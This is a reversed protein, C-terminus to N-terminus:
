KGSLSDAILRDLPTSVVESLSMTQPLRGARRLLMGQTEQAIAAGLEDPLVVAPAWVGTKPNRFRPAQTALRKGQRIVRVGNLGLTVGDFEIELAALALLRGHGEVCELDTVTFTVTMASESAVSCERDSAM